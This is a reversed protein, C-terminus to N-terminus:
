YYIQLSLGFTYCKYSLLNRRIIWVLVKWEKKRKQQFEVTFAFVFLFAIKRASIVNTHCMRWCNEPMRLVSETCKKRNEGCTIRRFSRVWVTIKLLYNWIMKCSEPAGGAVSASCTVEPSLRPCHFPYEPMKCNRRCANWRMQWQCPAIPQCFLM